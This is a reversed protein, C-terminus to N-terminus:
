ASYISKSDLIFTLQQATTYTKVQNIQMLVNSLVDPFNINKQRVGTRLCAPFSFSAKKKICVAPISGLIDAETWNLDNQM